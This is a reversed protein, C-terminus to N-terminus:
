MKEIKKSKEIKRNEIKTKGEREGGEREREGEREKWKQWRGTLKADLHFANAFNQALIKPDDGRHIGIRGTRGHALKIDV